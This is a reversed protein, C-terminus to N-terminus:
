FCCKNDLIWFYYAIKGQTNLIHFEVQAQQSLSCLLFTKIKRLQLFIVILIIKESHITINIVKFTEDMLM